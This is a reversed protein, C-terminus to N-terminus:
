IFRETEKTLERFNETNSNTSALIESISSVMDEASNAIDSTNVTCQTISETVNEIALTMEDMSRNITEANSSFTNFYKQVQDADDYYTDGMEKFSNYDNEIVTGMNKILNESNSMLNEVAQVVDASIKQINTASTRSDDALKSIEEAVVAFGRGAEGARAAEISANLALLNTQSAIALIDNSLANIEDVQRADQIALNLSDTSKALDNKINEQKTICENRITNARKQMENVYNTGDETEDVIQEVKSKVEMSSAMMEETSASVGEMTAHLEETAASITTANDNSNIVASSIANNTDNLTSSVSKIKSIIEDLVSIFKNVGKGLDGIEDNGSIYMNKSLDGRNAEIEDIIEDLSATSKKIPNIVILIMYVVMLVLVIAVLILSMIIQHTAAKAILANIEKENVSVGINVAGITKGADTLPTLVDLVLGYTDSTYYDCYKKGDRAAAISGADDLVLGIRDHNSHALSTVEGNVDEMYLVYAFDNAAAINDIIQQYAEILKDEPTTARLTEFQMKYAEVLKEDETSITSLVEEKLNSRAFLINILSIALLAIAVAPLIKIALNTKKGKNM